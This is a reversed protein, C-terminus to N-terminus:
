ERFGGDREKYNRLDPAWPQASGTEWHKQEPSPAAAQASDTFHKQGRTAAAASFNQRWQQAAM